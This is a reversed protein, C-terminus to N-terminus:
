AHSFTPFYLKEQEISELKSGRCFLRYDEGGDFLTAEFLDAEDQRPTFGLKLKKYEFNIEYIIKELSVSKQSIVSHLEMTEGDQEMVVFCDMEKSYYVNELDSTYFMQLGYKNEQEFAGNAVSNRVAECYKRKAGVDSAHLKVFGNSHVKEPIRRQMDLRVDDRLTYRYQMREEFGMKRYFDLASLDGFLYIGDCKGEYTEMVHEMLKKAFGQERHDVATMVTGLQIYNRKEGNQVFHMLNVSVNSLIKGDEELSYPIYDGEFYGNTVWSEFNFGFTAETLENLEHRLITDNMYDKVLRM